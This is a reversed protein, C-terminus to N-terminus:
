AAFYKPYFINPGLFIPPNVSYRQHLPQNPLCVRTYFALALHLCSRSPIPVLNFFAFFCSLCCIFVGKWVFISIVFTLLEEINPGTQFLLFVHKSNLCFLLSCTFVAWPITALYIQRKVSLRIWENEFSDKMFSPRIKNSNICFRPATLLSRWWWTGNWM